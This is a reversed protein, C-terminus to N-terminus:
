ASNALLQATHAHSEPCANIGWQWHNTLQTIFGRKPLINLAWIATVQCLPFRRGTNREFMFHSRRELYPLMLGQHLYVIGFKIELSIRGEPSPSEISLLLRNSGTVDLHSGFVDSGSFICLLNTCTLLTMCVRVRM